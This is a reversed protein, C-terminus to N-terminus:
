IANVVERPVVGLRDTVVTMEATGDENVLLSPLDGAHEPHNAGEDGPIHSGASMFDGTNQPDDPAQSEPECKGSEHLHLGYFGPALNEAAVRIELGEEVETFEVQGLPDNNSNILEVTTPSTEDEHSANACSALAFVALLTVASTSVTHCIDQLKQM